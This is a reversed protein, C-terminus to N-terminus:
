RKKRHNIKYGIWYILGGIFGGLTNYAIDSLQFTGVRTMLQMIEIALSTEFPIVVVSTIGLTNFHKIKRDIGSIKVIPLLPIFLLINEFMEYNPVGDIVFGWPGVINGLPEGWPSRNFITRQLVFVAYLIAIFRRIWIQEKFQTLLGRGVERWSSDEAKKWVILFLVSCIVSIGTYQYLLTLLDKFIRSIINWM